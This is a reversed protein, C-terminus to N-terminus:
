RLHDVVICLILILAGIVFWMLEFARESRRSLEMGALLALIGLGIM